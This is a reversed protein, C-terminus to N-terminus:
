VIAKTSNLTKRKMKAEKSPAPKLLKLLRSFKPWNRKETKTALTDRKLKRSQMFNEM